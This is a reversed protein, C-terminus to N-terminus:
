SSPRDAAMQELAALEMMQIDDFCEAWQRKDSFERDLVNFIVAYDLGTKYGNTHNWQTLLKSFIVFPHVNADWIEIESEM